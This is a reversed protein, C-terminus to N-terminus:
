YKGVNIKYKSRTTKFTSNNAHESAFGHWSNEHSNNPLLLSLYDINTDKQVLLLIEERKVITSETNSFIIM